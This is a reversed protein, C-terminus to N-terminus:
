SLIKDHFPTPNKDFVVEVGISIIMYKLDRANKPHASHGLALV